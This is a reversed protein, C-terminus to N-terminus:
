TGWVGHLLVRERQLLLSSRNGCVRKGHGLGSAAYGGEKRGHEKRSHGAHSIASAKVQHYRYSCSTPLLRGVRETALVVRLM